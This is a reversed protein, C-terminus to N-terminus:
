WILWKILRTMYMMYTTGTILIIIQPDYENIKHLLDIPCMHGTDDVKVKILSNLGLGLFMVRKVLSIIHM